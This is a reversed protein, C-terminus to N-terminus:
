VMTSSQIRPNIPIILRGHFYIPYSWLVPLVNKLLCCPKSIIQIITLSHQSNSQPLHGLIASKKWTPSRNIIIWGSTKANRTGFVTDLTRINISPPNISDRVSHTIKKAFPHPESRTSKLFRYSPTAMLHTRKKIWPVVNWVYVRRYDVHPFYNIRM